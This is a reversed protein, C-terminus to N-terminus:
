RRTARGTPPIAAASRDAAAGCGRSGARTGRGTRPRDPRRRPAALLLRRAAIEAAAERMQRARRSGDGRQAVQPFALHPQGLVQQPGRQSRGFAVSPRRSGSTRCAPPPARRLPRPVPAARLVRDRQQGVPEVHQLAGPQRIGHVQAIAGRGADGRGFAGLMARRSSSSPSRAAPSARLRGRSAMALRASCTRRCARRKRASVQRVSHSRMSAIRARSSTGCPRSQRRLTSSNRCIAAARRPSRRAPTTQRAPAAPARWRSEGSAM